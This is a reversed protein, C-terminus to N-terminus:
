INRFCFDCDCRACLGGEGVYGMLSAIEAETDDPGVCLRNSENRSCLTRCERQTLGVYEVADIATPYTDGVQCLMDFTRVCGFEITLDFGTMDWPWEEGDEDVLVLGTEMHSACDFEVVLARAITMHAHSQSRHVSTTRGHVGTAHVM